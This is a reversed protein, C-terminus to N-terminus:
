VLLALENELLARATETRRILVQLWGAEAQLVGDPKIVRAWAQRVEPVDQAAEQAAEPTLGATVLGAATAEAIRAAEKAAAENFLRLAEGTDHEVLEAVASAATVVYAKLGGVLALRADRLKALAAPETRVDLKGLGVAASRVAEFAKGLGEAYPEIQGNLRDFVKRVAEPTGAM